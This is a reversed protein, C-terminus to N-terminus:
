DQVDKKAAEKAIKSKFFLLFIGATNHVRIRIWIRNPLPNLLTGPDMDLLTFIAWFFPFCNIFKMKLLASHERKKSNFAEGTAQVDKIYAKKTIKSILFLLFFELQITEM